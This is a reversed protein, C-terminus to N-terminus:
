RSGRVPHAEVLDHRTELRQRVRERRREVLQHGDPGIAPCPAERALGCVRGPSGRGHEDEDVRVIGALRPDHEDLPRGVVAAVVRALDAERSALGLGPVGVRDRGREPLRGLLDPEVGVGRPDPHDAHRSPRQIGTLSKATM